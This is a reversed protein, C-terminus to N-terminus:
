TLERGLIMAALTKILEIGPNPQEVPEEPLAQPAGATLQSERGLRELDNIDIANSSM